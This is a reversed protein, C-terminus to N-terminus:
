SDGLVQKLRNQVEQVLLDPQFKSLFANCGVKEVMAQNFSGSLSTNLVVHLNKLRNDNRIEYTLRYGDMSPMEADTIVM